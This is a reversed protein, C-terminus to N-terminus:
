KKILIEKKPTEKEQESQESKEQETAEELEKVELGKEERNEFSTGYTLIHEGECGGKEEYERISKWRQRMLLKVNVYSEVTDSMYGDEDIHDNLLFLWYSTSSSWSSSVLLM